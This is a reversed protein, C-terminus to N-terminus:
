NPKIKCSGQLQLLWAVAHTYLTDSSALGAERVVPSPPMHRCHSWLVTSGVGWGGVGWAGVGGRGVGGRGLGLGGGGVVVVVVM